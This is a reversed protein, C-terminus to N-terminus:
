PFHCPEIIQVGDGQADILPTGTEVIEIPLHAIGFTNSNSDMAASVITGVEITTSLPSPLSAPPTELQVRYLKKKIGGRWQMRSTVEQGVYCGKEFSVGDMEILNANLPHISEDWECGFRPTGRIIRAAEMEEEEVRNGLVDLMIDLQDTPVALWFGHEAAEPMAMAFINRAPDSVTHLRQTDTPPLGLKQLADAAGAGQVSILSLPSFVGIRLEYGVSFNRLRGVVEEAHDAPTFLLLEDADGQMTHLESVAKGQSTLLAAYIASSASLRGIEQTLQGQLYDRIKPGSAKLVAIRSRACCIHHKDLLQEGQTSLKLM